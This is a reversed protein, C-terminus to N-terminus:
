PMNILIRYSMLHWERCAYLMRLVICFFLLRMASGIITDRTGLSNQSDSVTEKLSPVAAREMEDSSAAWRISKARSAHKPQVSSAAVDDSARLPELVHGNNVGQQQSSSSRNKSRSQSSSVLSSSSRRGQQQRNRVAMEADDNSDLNSTTFLSMLTGNHDLCDRLAILGISTLKNHRLDLYLLTTNEKLGNAIAAGGQDAISNRSLALKELQPRSVLCAQLSPTCECTLLNGSINLSVISSKHLSDFLRIAGADGIRQDSLSLVALGMGISFSTAFYEAGKSTIIPHLLVEYESAWVESPQKNSLNLHKIRHNKELLKCINAVGDDTIHNAGLLITHVKPHGRLGSCIHQIGLNGIANSELMLIEAYTNNVLANNIQWCMDDDLGCSNLCIRVLTSDDARLRGCLDVVVRKQHTSHKPVLHEQHATQSLLPVDSNAIVDIKNRWTLADDNVSVDFLPGRGIPTKIKGPKPGLVDNVYSMMVRQCGKGHDSGSPLIHDYNKKVPEVKPIVDYGSGYKPKPVERVAM